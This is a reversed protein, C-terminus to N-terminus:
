GPAYSKKLESLEEALLLPLEKGSCSIGMVKNVDDDTFYLINADGMKIAVDKVSVSSILSHSLDDTNTICPLKLIGGFKTDIVM